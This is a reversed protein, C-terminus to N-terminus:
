TYNFKIAIYYNINILNTRANQRDTTNTINNENLQDDFTNLYDSYESILENLRDQNNENPHNNLYDTLQNTIINRENENNIGADTLTQSFDYSTTDDPNDTTDDDNRHTLYQNFGDLSQTNSDGISKLYNIVDMYPYSESTMDSWYVNGDADTKRIFIHPNEQTDPTYQIMKTSGSIYQFQTNDDTTQQEQYTNSFKHFGGVQHLLASKISINRPAISSNKNNHISHKATKICGTPTQQRETM